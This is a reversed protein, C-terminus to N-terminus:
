LSVRAGIAGVSETELSRRTFRLAHRGLPSPSSGTGGTPSRALSEPRARTARAFPGYKENVVWRFGASSKVQIPLAQFTREKDVYAIIDIGHERRPLAVELGARHLQAIVPDRGLLCITQL